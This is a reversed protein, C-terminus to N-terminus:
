RKEHSIFVGLIPTLFNLIQGFLASFKGWFADLLCYFGTSIDSFFALVNRTFAEVICDFDRFINRFFPFVEGTFTNLIGFRNGLWDLGRCLLM